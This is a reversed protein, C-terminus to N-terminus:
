GLPRIGIADRIRALFPTAYARAKVAGDKLTQEIRAPDAILAEYTERDVHDGSTVLRISGYGGM